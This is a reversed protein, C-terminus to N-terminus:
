VCIHTYHTTLILSVEFIYKYNEPETNPEKLLKSLHIDLFRTGHLTLISVRNSDRTVCAPIHGLYFLCKHRLDIPKEHLMAPPIMCMTILDWAKWMEQWEEVTPANFVSRVQQAQQSLTPSGGAGELSAAAAIEPILPFHFPPRELLFLSYLGRPDTWKQIM